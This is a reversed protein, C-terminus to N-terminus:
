IIKTNKLLQRFKEYEEDERAQVAPSVRKKDLSPAKGKVRAEYKPDSEMSDFHKDAYEFLKGNSCLNDLSFKGTTRWWNDDQERCWTLAASFIELSRDGYTKVLKRITKIHKESLVSHKVFNSPKESLYAELFVGFETSENQTLRAGRNIHVLNSKTKNDRAAAGKQNQGPNSNRAQIESKEREVSSHIRAQIEEQTETAIEVEVAVAQDEEKESRIGSSKKECAGGGAPPSLPTNKFKDKKSKDEIDIYEKHPHDAGGTPSGGSASGSTASGDITGGPTSSGDIATSDQQFVLDRFAIADQQHAFIHYDWDFQGTEEDRTRVRVLYNNDEANKIISRLGDRGYGLAARIGSFSIDFGESHSTIWCILRFAGDSVDRNRILDNPIQTFNRNPAVGKKVGM